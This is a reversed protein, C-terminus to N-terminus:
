AHCRPSTGTLRAASSRAISSFPTATAALTAANESPRKAAASGPAHSASSPSWTRGAGTAASDISTTMVWPM